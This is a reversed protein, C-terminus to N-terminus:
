VQSQKGRPDTLREVVNTDQPEIAGQGEMNSKGFCLYIYFNSKKQASMNMSLLLLAIIVSFQTKIKQLKM